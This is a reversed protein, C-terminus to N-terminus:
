FLISSQRLQKCIQTIVVVVVSFACIRHIFASGDGLGMDGDLTWSMERWGRGTVTFTKMSKVFSNTGSRFSLSVTVGAKRGNVSRASLALRTNTWTEKNLTAIAICGPNPVTKDTRRGRIVFSEPGRSEISFDAGRGNLPWMTWHRDPKQPAALAAGCAAAFAVASLGKM